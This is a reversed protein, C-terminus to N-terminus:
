QRGHHARTGRVAARGLRALEGRAEPQGPVMQLIRLYEPAAAARDGAKAAAGVLRHGPDQTRVAGWENMASRVAGDRVLVHGAPDPVREADRALVV